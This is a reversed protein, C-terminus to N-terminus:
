LWCFALNVTKKNKPHKTKRRTWNMLYVLLGQMTCNQRTAIKPQLQQGDLPRTVNDKTKM